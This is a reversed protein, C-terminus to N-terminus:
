IDFNSQSFIHFELHIATVIRKWMICLGQVILVPLRTETRSPTLSSSVIMSIPKTNIMLEYLFGDNGSFSFMDFAIIFKQFSSM